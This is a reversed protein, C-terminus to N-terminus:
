LRILPPLIPMEPGAPVADRAPAERTTSYPRGTEAARPQLASEILLESTAAQAVFALPSSPTQLALAQAWSSMVWPSLVVTAQPQPGAGGPGGGGPVPNVWWRSGIWGMVFFAVSAAVAGVWPAWVRRVRRGAKTDLRRVKGSPAAVHPLEMVAAAIRDRLGSPVQVDEPCSLLEMMPGYRARCGACSALHSELEQAVRTSLTRDLHADILWETERCEM